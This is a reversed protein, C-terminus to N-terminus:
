CSINGKLLLDRVKHRMNQSITLNDGNKMEVQEYTYRLVHNKNIIYSQHIAIFDESLTKHIDKLKGYFQFSGDTTFIIIKRRQSEFYLINGQSIFYHDRGQQFEFREQKKKIIKLATEISESIQCKTIPKILFDMPQTKFLQQAYSSKGSIYILQMFRNDLDNRIYDGVDIGTMKCLEIDLFLIDLYGGEALYDRLEEGSYWIKIDIQISKEKAIELIYEELQSCINEGDDCIGIEYM